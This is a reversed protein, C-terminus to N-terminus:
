YANSVYYKGDRQIFELTLSGASGTLTMAGNQGASAQIGAGLRTKWDRLEEAKADRVKATILDRQGKPISTWDDNQARAPGEYDFASAAAKLDGATIAAALASATKDASEAAISGKKGCGPLLCFCAPITLLLATPRLRFM